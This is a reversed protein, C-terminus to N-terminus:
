EVGQGARRQKLVELNRLHDSKRIRYFSLAILGLVYVALITPVYVEALHTASSIDPSAGADRPFDAIDLVVGALLVGLGSVAKRAFMQAAFFTGESRRGTKIESDEPIDAVMSAILIQAAIVLALDFVVISLLLPFLAPDDNGPFWGVLRLIIPLPAIFFALAAIGIAATKKEWVRGAWRALAFAMPTSALGALVIIAVQQPTLEWFYNNFYLNLAAALAAGVGLIITTAFIALFSRNSLTEILERVTRVLSLDRKPPPDNLSPILHHTGWASVLISALIMAAGIVGYAAYGEVNFFGNAVTETPRLLVWYMIFGITLGGCWQFFYRYSLLATREEYDESIESVLATSPIEYLTVALRLLIAVVLLYPILDGGSLGAPPNWLLYFTIAVPVASAYMFPHRRGWRSHLRDSVQGVIPDSIADFILAVFIVTGTLSAPAGLVQSYFFLLFYNFGNDKVGYAVSGFGYAARTWFGVHESGPETSASPADTSM